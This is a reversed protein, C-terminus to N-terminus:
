NDVPPGYVEEIELINEPDTSSASETYENTYEETTTAETTEEVPPGYVTPIDNVNSCSSLLIGALGAAAGLMGARKIKKM